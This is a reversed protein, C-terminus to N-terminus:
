TSAWWLQGQARVAHDQSQSASAAPDENGLVEIVVTRRRRRSTLAATRLTSSNLFERASDIYVFHLLFHAAEIM